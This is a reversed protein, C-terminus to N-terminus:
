STLVRVGYVFLSISTCLVVGWGWRELGRESPESPVFGSRSSEV